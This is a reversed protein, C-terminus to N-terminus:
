AEKWGQNLVELLPHNKLFQAFHMTQSFLADMVKSANWKSNEYGWVPYSFDISEINNDEMQNVIIHVMTQTSGYSVSAGLHQTFEYGFPAVNDM